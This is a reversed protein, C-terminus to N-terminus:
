EREKWDEYGHPTRVEEGIEMNPKKETPMSQLCGIFFLTFIIILLCVAMGILCHNKAM